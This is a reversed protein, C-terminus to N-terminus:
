PTFTVASEAGFKRYNRFEIVNKSCNNTGRFCSLTESKVPLLFKGAGLRIFEYDIVTEVKDIPFDKPVNRSQKEVRLVRATEKDFWVTGRYAPSYSEGPAVVRWHSNEQKVYFNYVVSTRGVIIEQARLPRFDAQTTAQLLDRITTGFEGTSWSGTEEAKGKSPKGNLLVNKYIEKGDSYILDISINDQAQWDTKITTSQYRTTFQKVTYNPLSESFNEAVEKAKEILPDGERDPDPAPVTPGAPPVYPVADGPRGSSKSSRDVAVVLPEEEGEKKRSVPRGRTLKPPGDEDTNKQDAAERVENFAGRAPALEQEAEKEKEKVKGKKVTKEAPQADNSQADRQSNSSDEYTKAETPVPVRAAAKEQATGPKELTVRGAFYKGNEDTGYEVLIHDGPEVGDPKIETIGKFYKTSVDQSFRVIRKDESELILTEEGFQRLTGRTSKLMEMQQQKAKDAAKKGKRPFPIGGGPFSIQGYTSSATTLIVLACVSFHTM